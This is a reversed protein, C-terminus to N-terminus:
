VPAKDAVFPPAPWLGTSALPLGLAAQVALDVMQVGTVKSLFPVTRSGRPNVEIVYVSGEFVVYQINFLGRVGLARGMATTYQVITEVQDTSLSQAPYLAISDGSHVGAREVHEMIGPILVEGGD